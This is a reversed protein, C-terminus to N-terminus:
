NRTWLCYGASVVAGHGPSAPVLCSHSNVASVCLDCLYACLFGFVLEILEFYSAPSAGGRTVRLSFPPLMRGPLQKGIQSQVVIM